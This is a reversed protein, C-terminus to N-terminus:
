FDFILKSRLNMNTAINHTNKKPEDIDRKKSLILLFHATNVINNLRIKIHKKFEVGINFFCV